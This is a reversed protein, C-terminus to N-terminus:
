HFLHIQLVTELANQGSYFVGNEFTTKRLLAELALYPYPMVTVGGGWRTKAGSGLHRDPDYFDYTAKVELGQRVLCTVEHSTV